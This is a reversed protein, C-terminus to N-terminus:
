FGLLEKICSDNKLSFCYQKLFTKVAHYLVYQLVDVCIIHMKASIMETM